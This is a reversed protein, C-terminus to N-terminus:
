SVRISPACLVSSALFNIGFGVGDGVEDATFLDLAFVDEFRNM